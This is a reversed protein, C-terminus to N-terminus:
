SRSYWLGLLLMYQLGHLDLRSDWSLFLFFCLAVDRRAM